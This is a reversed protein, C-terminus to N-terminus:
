KKRKMWSKLTGSSDFSSEPGILELINQYRTMFEKGKETTIFYSSNGGAHELFELDILIQLYDKARHFNLNAGYVIRTKNVAKENAVELINLLMDILARKPRKSM